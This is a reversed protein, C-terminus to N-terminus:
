HRKQVRLERVSRGGSQAFKPNAASTTRTLILLRCTRVTAFAFLRAIRLRRVQVDRELWGCSTQKANISDCSERELSADSRELVPSICWLHRPQRSKADHHRSPFARPPTVPQLRTSQRSVPFAPLSTRLAPLLVHASSSVGGGTKYFIARISASMPLSGM